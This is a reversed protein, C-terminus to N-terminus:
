KQTSYGQFGIITLSWQDGFLGLDGFVGLVFDELDGFDGFDGFLGIEDSVGSDFEGGQTSHLGHLSQLLPQLSSQLLLLLTTFTLKTGTLLLLCFKPRLDTDSDSQWIDVRVLKGTLCPFCKPM